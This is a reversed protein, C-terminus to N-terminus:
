GATWRSARRLAEASAPREAEQPVANTEAAKAPRPARRASRRLRSVLKELRRINRWQLVPGVVGLAGTLLVVAVGCAEDNM